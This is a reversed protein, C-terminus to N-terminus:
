KDIPTTKQAINIRVARFETGPHKTMLEKAGDLALQRKYTGHEGTQQWCDGCAGFGDTSKWDGPYGFHDFSSFVWEGNMKHQIRFFLWKGDQRIM